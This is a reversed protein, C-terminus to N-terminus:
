WLSTPKFYTHERVSTSASGREDAPELSCNKREEAMEQQNWSNEPWSLTVGVETEIERPMGRQTDM